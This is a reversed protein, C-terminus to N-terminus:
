GIGDRKEIVTFNSGMVDDVGFFNGGLITDLVGELVDDSVRFRSAAAGGGGGGLVFRVVLDTSRSIPLPDYKSAIKILTM